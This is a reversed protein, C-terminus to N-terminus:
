GRELAWLQVREVDFEDMVRGLIYDEGIEFVDLGPSRDRTVNACGGEQASGDM